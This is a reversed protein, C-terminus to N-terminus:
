PLRGERSGNEDSPLNMAYLETSETETLAEPAQFPGEPNIPNPDVQFIDWQGRTDSQYIIIDSNCRFSPARDNFTNNTADKLALSEVEIAFVDFDGDLNSEFAIFRDSPAFSSLNIDTGLDLLMRTEGTTLDRLWLDYVGFDNLQLWALMTGDNSPAPQVDPTNNDTLQTLEGTEFDLEYVEYEGDRDSTFYIGSGDPKWAANVDNAPDDTLRTLEGTSVDLVYLEWNADRNSEFVIKNAAAGEGWVPNIDVGTNFTIRFQESGDARGVYLEWNTLGDRNSTFVIYEADQSRSPQIDAAARGQSLNESVSNLIGGLRFVEWDGTRDTHYAIWDPCVEGGITFPPFSGPLDVGPVGVTLPPRPFDEPPPTPVFPPTPTNIVVPPVDTVPSIQLVAPIAVPANLVNEPLAELSAFSDLESPSLVRWNSWEGAIRGQANLPATVSVGARITTAMSAGLAGVTADGTVGIIEMESDATTRLFITNTFTIQAGNAEITAPAGNPAQLILLSPPADVCSSVETGTSFNFSEMPFRSDASIIPLNELGVGEVADVSLWGSSNQAGVRLWEGDPSIGIVSVQSGQAVNVIGGANASPALRLMSVNSTTLTPVENPLTIMVEPAVANEIEVDGILVMKVNETVSTGTTSTRVNLLAVGWSNADLNFPNSRLSAISNLTARDAPQSFLSDGETVAAIDGYGYCASNDGLNACNNSVQALALNILAPCLSGTDNGVQAFAAPAILALLGILGLAFYIVSRYRVRM